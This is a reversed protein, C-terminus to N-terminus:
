SSQIITYTCFHCHMIISVYCRSVLVVMVLMIMMMAAVVVVVLMAMMLMMMMMMVALMPLNMYTALSALVIENRTPTMFELVAVLVPSPEALAKSFGWPLLVSHCTGSM